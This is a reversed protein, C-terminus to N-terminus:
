GATNGSKKKKSIREIGHTIAAFLFTMSFFSAIVNLLNLLSFPQQGHAGGPMTGRGQRQAAEPQEADAAKDEAQNESTMIVDNNTAEPKWAGHQEGRSTFPASIWSSFSSNVTQWCGFALVIVTLLVTVIKPLHIRKGLFGWFYKWHLGFHVGTIILALASIFFHWPNLSSIQIAFLKKSVLIGTILVGLWSIALLINVIKIILPKAAKGTKQKRHFLGSIWKRNFVLHVFFLIFIGIGALEHYMLSIVNKSYLTILLLIMLIDLTIRIVTSTKVSQKRGAQNTDSYNKEM